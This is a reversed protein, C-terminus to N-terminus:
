ECALGDGDGDGRHGTGYQFWNYIEVEDPDNVNFPGTPYGLTNKKLKACSGFQEWWRDATASAQGEAAQAAAIRQEEALKAAAVRQEEAQRKVDAEEKALDRECEVTVVKGGSSLSASQAARYKSQNPHFPYGDTSDYRAVAQGAKILILGLDSGDQGAVSRLLRGYKDQENQGDPLSLRVESGPPIKDALVAAARDAGCEGREPTDIGIIRVAGLSTEITDGDTISVVVAIDGEPVVPAAEDACAVLGVLSIAAVVLAGSFKQRFRM